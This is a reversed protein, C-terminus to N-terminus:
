NGVFIFQGKMQNKSSYINVKYQMCPLRAYIVIRAPVQNWNCQTDNLWSFSLTLVIQRFVNHLLTNQTLTKGTVLYDAKQENLKPCLNLPIAAFQGTGGGQM